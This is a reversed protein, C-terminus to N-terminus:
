FDMLKWQHIDFKTDGFHRMVREELGDFLKGDCLEVLLRDRELVGECCRSILGIWRDEEGEDIVSQEKGIGCRTLNSGIGCNVEVEIKLKFDDEM